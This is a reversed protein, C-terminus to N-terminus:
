IKSIEDLSKLEESSLNWDMAQINQLVQAPKKAGILAVSVNIKDLIFRIAVAAVPKNHVTAIEKLKEVIILNKILKEGHFNVYIDRSRRDNSGFVVNKNYKGTLIGQGLSGWTLPSLKNNSCFDVLDSENERSALSYENQLAVFKGVFPKIEEYRDKYVNSLAYFRIKGDQKLKDLTAVVEGMPTVSDRYHVTYIDIYDTNLRKLSNECAKLIYDPSNDYSTKGNEVKVGFKTSLIIKDRKKGIAKSLLTESHGLGYTDATDFFNIGNELATQVTQILESENVHGWMYGGLPCGGLCVRSVSLNTNRLQVYEM